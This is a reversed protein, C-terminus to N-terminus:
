HLVPLWSETSLSAGVSMSGDSVSDMGKLGEVLKDDTLALELVTECCSGGVM